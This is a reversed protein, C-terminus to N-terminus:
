QAALRSLAPVIDMLRSRTQEETFLGGDPLGDGTDQLHIICKVKPKLKKGIENLLNALPPYYAAEEVAAGSSRIARLEHIYTELADM